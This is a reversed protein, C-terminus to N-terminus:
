FSIISPVVVVSSEEQQQEQADKNKHVISNHTSLTQRKNHIISDYTSISQKRKHIHINKQKQLSKITCVTLPKCNAFPSVACFWVVCVYVCVYVICTYECLECM